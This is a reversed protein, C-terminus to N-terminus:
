VELAAHAPKRPVKERLGAEIEILERGAAAVGTKRKAHLAQDCDGVGVQLVRQLVGQENRRALGADAVETEPAETHRQERQALNMPVYIKAASLLHLNRSAAHPGGHEGAARARPVVRRQAQQEARRSCAQRVVLLTNLAGMFMCVSLRM